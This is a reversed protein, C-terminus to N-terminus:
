VPGAGAGQPRGAMANPDNPNGQPQMQEMVMQQATQALQTTELQETIRVNDQVLEFREMGLLQEMLKALKKGSIHANVAPDQGLASTAFQTLNQIM